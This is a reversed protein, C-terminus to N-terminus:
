AREVGSGVQHALSMEALERSFGPQEAVWDKFTSRFGHVTIGEVQMRQLLMLMAMNSM